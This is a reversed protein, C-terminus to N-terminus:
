RVWGEAEYFPPWIKHLTHTYDSCFQFSPFAISHSMCKHTNSTRKLKSFLTSQVKLPIVHFFSYFLQRAFSKAFRNETCKQRYKNQAIHILYQLLRVPQSVTNDFRLYTLKTILFSCSSKECACWIIHQNCSFRCVKAYLVGMYKLWFKKKCRFEKQWWWNM